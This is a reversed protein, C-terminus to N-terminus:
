ITQNPTNEPDRPEKTKRRMIDQIAEDMIKKFIQNKQLEYPQEFVSHRMFHIYRNGYPKSHCVSVKKPDKNKIFRKFFVEAKKQFNYVQLYDIVGIQYCWKKDASFFLNGTLPPKDDNGIESFSLDEKSKGSNRDLSARYMNQILDYKEKTQSEKNKISTDM